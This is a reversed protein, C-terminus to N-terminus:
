CQWLKKRNEEPTCQVERPPLPIWGELPINYGRATEIYCPLGGPYTADLSAVRDFFAHKEKDCTGPPDWDDFLHQQGSRVLIGALAIEAADLLELNAVLAAPLDAHEIGKAGGDAANAM